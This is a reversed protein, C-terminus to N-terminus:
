LFLSNEGTRLFVAFDILWLFGEKKTLNGLSSCASNVTVKWGSKCARDRARKTFAKLRNERGHDGSQGRVMWCKIIDPIDPKMTRREGERASSTELLTM